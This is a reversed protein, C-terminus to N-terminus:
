MSVSVRGRHVTRALGSRGLSWVSRGYEGCTGGGVLSSLRLLCLLLRLLISYIIIIAMINIMTIIAMINMVCHMICLLLLLLSLLLLILVPLQKILKLKLQNTNQQIMETTTSQQKIINNTAMTCHRM